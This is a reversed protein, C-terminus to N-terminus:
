RPRLLWAPGFSARGFQTRGDHTAADTYVSVGAKSTVYLDDVLRRHAVPRIEGAADSPEVQQPHRVLRGPATPIATPRGHIRGLEVRWCPGDDPPEGTM